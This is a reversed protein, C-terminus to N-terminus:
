VSLGEARMSRTDEAASEIELESLLECGLHNTGSGICDFDLEFTNEGCIGCIWNEKEIESDGYETYCGKTKLVATIEAAISERASDVSLDIQRDKYRNLVKKIIRQM